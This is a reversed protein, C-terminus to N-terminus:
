LTTGIPSKQRDFDTSIDHPQPIMSSKFQNRIAKSEMLLRHVNQIENAKLDPNLTKQIEDFSSLHHQAFVENQDLSPTLTLAIKFKKTMFTKSKKDSKDSRKEYINKMLEFLEQNKPM